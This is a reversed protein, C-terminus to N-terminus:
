VTGACAAQWVEQEAGGDVSSLHGSWRVNSGRERLEVALGGEDGATAAPDTESECGRAQVGPHPDHERVDAAVMEVLGDGAEIVTSRNVRDLEVDAVALRKRTRDIVRASRNAVHM